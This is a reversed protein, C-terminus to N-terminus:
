GGHSQCNECRPCLTIDFVTALAKMAISHEKGMYGAADITGIRIEQM